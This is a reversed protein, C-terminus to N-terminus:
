AGSVSEFRPVEQGSLVVKETFLRYPRAFLEFESEYLPRYVVMMESTETELAVGVVEYLKGSKTHKYVGKELHPLKPDAPKNIALIM